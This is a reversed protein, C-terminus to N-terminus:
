KKEVYVKGKLKTYAIWLLLPVFTSFGLILVLDDEPIPLYFLPIFLFVFWVWLIALPEVIKRLEYGAAVYGGLGILHSVAFLILMRLAPETPLVLGEPNFIVALSLFGLVMAAAGFARVMFGKLM